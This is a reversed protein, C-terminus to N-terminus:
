RTKKLIKSFLQNDTKKIQELYHKYLKEFRGERAKTVSDCHQQWNESFFIVPPYSYRHLIANLLIRGVRGNGDLFPHIGEFKIYFKLALEPPYINKKFEKNVWIMLNKMEKRVNKWDTTPNDGPAVNNEKKWKGSIMPDLGNLLLEHIFRINKMNWKMDSSFAHRFAMFSNFIEKETKTKPSRSKSASFKDIQKKTVKSGEGKNSHFTFLRILKDYYDDHKNRFLEHNLIIHFSHLEELKDLGGYRFNKKTTDPLYKYNYKGIKDFFDIIRKELDLPLSSGLNKSHNKYQLYYYSKGKIVKKVIYKM